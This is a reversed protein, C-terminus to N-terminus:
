KGIRQEDPNEDKSLAEIRCEALLTVMKDAGTGAILEAAVLMIALPLGACLTLIRDFHEKYEVDPPLHRLFKSAEVESMPPLEHMRFVRRVHAFKANTTSTIIIRVTPCNQIIRSSIDLLSFDIKGEIADEANDFLLVTVSSRFTKLAIILQFVFDNVSKIKSQMGLQAFIQNSFSGIDKFQRLDVYIIKIPGDNERDHHINLKSIESIIVDSHGQVDRESVVVNPDNIPVEQNVATDVDSGHKREEPNTNEILTESAGECQGKEKLEQIKRRLFEFATRTKGVSRLGYIGFLKINRKWDRDLEDLFDERGVFETEQNVGPDM